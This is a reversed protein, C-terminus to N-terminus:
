AELLGRIDDADLAGSFPDGDDLVSRFLESKRQQLAAVKEEITGASLLRYVFVSRTQGIRHTRDVAQAEAAPNWWPDLIFVYDAETLTLGFGGAKLSILFAAADGRRFGDVVGARDATSGDLSAYAIGAADLREAAMALFSTFQSFVLARHGEAAVETLRDLLADLKASGLHADDPSVLAPALSLLRLLTLSRFVVMRNRDLDDLLGLVKRRERQLVADYRARHAPALEIHVDQEQRPPLEPAVLEKTRRLVFPRIRRRLREVRRARHRAAADTAIPTNAAASAHEIPRVYEERFRRASPFLGPATLSLLAWLDTLSNELPTGTIAVTMGRRLGAVAQHLKTRPNKAFQAEDLLVGAWEHATFAAADLRLVAYSTVVLDAEAAAQALSTRSRAGTADVTRVVLDPLFRAAEEAWTALVSTPAVVLFPRREGAGRAHAVLALTQLTKGLGMDDALIGGLGHRWLFALWSFGAQQYPRLRARLAAPPPPPEIADTDRLGAVTAQWALAPEAQDALDEFETWLSVQTRAIRPGTEWEALSAAEEVLERLRDLAPHALSFFAGDSLMMRARGRALATFLSGFPITRGEVVVLIGLDFWDPDPSEVATITIAPDGTLERYAPREGTIEVRVRPLAELAPLVRASFEAADLDRVTAASAFPSASAHAWAARVHEALEAEPGALDRGAFPVPPRGPSVWTMDYRITHAPRFQVAVRLSPRGPPPLVLGDAATVATRRALVPYLEDLFEAKEAAPIMLGPSGLLAPLPDPLDAPALVVPIPDRHLAFAYLGSTGIPRVAEAAADAGDIQVTARLLVAGGPEPHLTVGVRAAGALSVEQQPHTAVVPIGLVEAASLHPWVHASAATDLTIWEPGPSFSGAIRPASAIGILETFWRAHAARYREPFRRISGWSVDGRIWGGRAGPVLPRLAISLEDQRRALARPTAAAVARPEWRGPDYADRQRLEVGLGLPTAASDESVPILARWSSM